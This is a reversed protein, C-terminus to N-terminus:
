GTPGSRWGACRTWDPTAATGRAREYWSAVRLVGLDDFRHGAIQLGIPQGVGTWGCNVSAAPQGSMNYPVTFGIHELPRRVDNTPSPHEAPFAPVPSVPSLVYDFPQVADVAAKSVALMQNVCRVVTVGPVDAGGRCWDAIYPLVSAQREPALASFDAWSRVRWFLDLDHLMEQSFFPALPEVTAGDAAFLGAAETVASTVEPEVPLGAGADLLLGIRLGTVSGDVDSWAIDQPPLSTHDRPDPRSLVSMLLATDAVTRTMPGAARGFYPPDVPVRGHSPKLTVTATWGAPLRLSGGIDTGV